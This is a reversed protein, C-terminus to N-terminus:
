VYPVRHYKLTLQHHIQRQQQQPQQEIERVERALIKAGEMQGQKAAKKIEAKVKAGESDIKRVQMRSFIKLLGLMWASTRHSPSGHAFTKVEEGRVTVLHPRSGHCLWTASREYSPLSVHAADKLNLEVRFKGLRM